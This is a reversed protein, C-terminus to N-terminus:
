IYTDDTLSFVWFELKLPKVFDKFFRISIDFYNSNLNMITNFIDKFSQSYIGYKNDVNVWNHEFEFNYSTNLNVSANVNITFTLFLVIIILFYKFYRKM